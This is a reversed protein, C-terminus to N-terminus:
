QVAIISIEVNVNKPLCAVQVTERAPATKEDFYAGYVANIAAFNNMDMIFITAKVVNDFTMNSAELIAAINKMVQTTEDNINDTIIEGTAPNIAIQGSAYLTNGSLVAQNYPGIPAPAKDTFIIKKM